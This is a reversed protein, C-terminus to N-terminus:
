LTKSNICVFGDVRSVYDDLTRSRADAHMWAAAPATHTRPQPGTNTLHAFIDYQHQTELMVLKELM